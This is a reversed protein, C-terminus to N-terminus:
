RIPPASISSEELGAEVREEATLLFKAAKFLGVRFTEEAQTLASRDEPMPAAFAGGHRTREPASAIASWKGELAALLLSPETYTELIVRIDPLTVGLALLPMYTEFAYRSLKLNNMMSAMTGGGAAQKALMQLRANNWSMETILAWRAGNQKARQEDAVLKHQHKFGAHVALLSFIGTIIGGIIAGLSAAFLQSDLFTGLDVM